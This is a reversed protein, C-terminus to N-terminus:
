ITITSHLHCADAPYLKKFTKGALSMYWAADTLLLAFNERKTGFQPLLDDVTHLVISSNVNSSSELPLYEILFTANPNDLSGVLVNICKQKDVEAADVILFVKKDRLLERIKEEKQSALQAVSARASTKSLLPKRM